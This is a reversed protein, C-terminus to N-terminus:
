AQKQTFNETVTTALHNTMVVRQQACFAWPIAEPEGAAEAGTPGFACHEVNTCFM